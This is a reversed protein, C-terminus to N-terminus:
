CLWILIYCRSCFFTWFPEMWRINMCQFYCHNLNVDLVFSYVGRNWAPYDNLFKMCFLEPSVETTMDKHIIHLISSPFLKSLHHILAPFDCQRFIVWEKGNFGLLGFFHRGVTSHRAARYFFLVLVNMVFCISHWRSQYCTFKIYSRQVLPWSEGRANNMNESAFCGERNCLVHVPLSCPM